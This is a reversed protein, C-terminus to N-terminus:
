GLRASVRRGLERNRPKTRLTMSFESVTCRTM